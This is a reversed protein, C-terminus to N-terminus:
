ANYVPSQDISFLIKEEDQGSVLGSTLIAALIIVKKITM